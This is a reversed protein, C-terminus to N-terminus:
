DRRVEFWMAPGRARRDLSWRDALGDLAWYPFLAESKRDREGNDTPTLLARGSVEIRVRSASINIELCISGPPRHRASASRAVIESVLLRVRRAPEGELERLADELLAISQRMKRPDPDIELKTTPAERRETAGLQESGRTEAQAGM